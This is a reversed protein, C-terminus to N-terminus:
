FEVQLIVFRDEEAKEILEVCILGVLRFFVRCVDLCVCFIIHTVHCYSIWLLRQYTRIYNSMICYLFLQNILIILIIPIFLFEYADSCCM